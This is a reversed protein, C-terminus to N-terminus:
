LEERIALEEHTLRAEILLQRFFLHDDLSGMEAEMKQLIARGYGLVGWSSVGTRAM